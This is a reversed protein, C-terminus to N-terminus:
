ETSTLMIQQMKKWNLEHNDGEILAMTLDRHRHENVQIWLKQWNINKRSKTKTRHEKKNMRILKKAVNERLTM